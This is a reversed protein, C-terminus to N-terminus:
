EVIIEDCFVWSKEGAGEHWEPLLLPSNTQVRIYRASIQRGSLDITFNFITDTTTRPSIMHTVTYNTYSKDDASLGFQVANPLLIWSRTNMLFGTSIKRLPTVKGLDIVVHMENGRFGQWEQRFDDPGRIGDVLTTNGNGPYRSHPQLVYTVPKQLALHYLITKSCAKEKLKGDEFVGAQITVLNNVRVPGSYKKSGPSPESGDQTYRIEAGPIESELVAMVSGARGPATTISVKYSGKSYRAGLNDFRAFHAPLRRQFGPWDKKEKPSWVVEALASMRPLSMYEAMGADPIYETWVNGQAGLVYKAESEPLEPPVPEFSYVKKLTLFGGGVKPEFEPDAQYYDFYCHSTPTMIVEHGLGAAKIGGEVGRWSMVTAEPALGGDLIEDWGIIKKGKSIVYQEIRKIFYSQLENEDKLGETRIRGQCKRCAKWNTKDAEDGGIHIYPSPFLEMVEALVNELFEFTKDNGACFIDSNPWYGGPQVPLTDGKCSLDPYAAFVESSHGPMEIEPIVTIQREAAYAIIERIDDQTYFGGYTAKEGPKIPERENWPQDERDVRWASKQTLLPYKKIEIRWGNDDTLHWHFVNMKHIAILDIYRKIFEKPFFHRSVDLHMGRYPFRPSDYIKVCPAQWRVNAAPAASFVEPPLLQLLSQFGYFFGPVDLAEIRVHDKQVDLIYGERGLKDDVAKNLVICNGYSEQVGRVLAPHLGSSRQLQESFSRIVADLEGPLEGVVVMRTQGDLVFWGKGAEMQMPKPIISVDKGGPKRCSSLSFSIALM